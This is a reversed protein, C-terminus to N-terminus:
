YFTEFRLELLKGLSGMDITGFANEPDFSSGTSGDEMSHIIAKRDVPVSKPCLILRTPALTHKYPFIQVAHHDFPNEPPAHGSEM